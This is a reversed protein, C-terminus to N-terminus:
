YRLWGPAQAMQQIHLAAEIVAERQRDDERHDGADAVFPQV